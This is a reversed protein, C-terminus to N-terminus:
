QTEIKEFFYDGDDGRLIIVKENYPCIAAGIIREKNVAPDAAIIDEEGLYGTIVDPIEAIAYRDIVTQNSTYGYQEKQYSIVITYALQDQVSEAPQRSLSVVTLSLRTILALCAAAAAIKKYRGHRRKKEQEARLTAYVKKDLSSLDHKEQTEPFANDAQNEIYRRMAQEIKKNKM